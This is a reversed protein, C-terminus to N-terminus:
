VGRVSENETVYVVVLGEPCMCRLETVAMRIQKADTPNRDSGDSQFATHLQRRGAAPSLGHWRRGAVWWCEGESNNEVLKILTCCVFFCGSLIPTSSELLHHILVRQLAGIPISPVAVYCFPNALYASRRCGAAM